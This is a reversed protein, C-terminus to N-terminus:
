LGCRVFVLFPVHVLIDFVAALNLSSDFFMWALHNSKEKPGGFCVPALPQIPAADVGRAGPVQNRCVLFLFPENNM